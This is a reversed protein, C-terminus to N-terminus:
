PRNDWDGVVPAGPTQKALGVVATNGTFSNKLCWRTGGRLM